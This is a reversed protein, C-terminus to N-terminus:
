KNGPIDFLPSSVPSEPAANAIELRHWQVFAQCLVGEDAREPIRSEPFYLLIFQFLQLATHRQECVEFLTFGVEIPSNAGMTNLYCERM